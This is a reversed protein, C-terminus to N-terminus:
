DLSKPSKLLNLMRLHQRLRVDPEWWGGGQHTFLYGYDQILLATELDLDWLVEKDKGLYTSDSRMRQRDKTHSPPLAGKDRYGVGIRRKRKRKYAHFSMPRNVWIALEKFSSDNAIQIRSIAAEQVDVSSNTLLRYLRRLGGVELEGKVGLGLLMALQITPKTWGSRIIASHAANIRQTNASHPGKQGVMSQIPLSLM